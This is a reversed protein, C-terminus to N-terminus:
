RTRLAEADSSLQHRRPLAREHCQDSGRPRRRPLSSRAQPGRRCWRDRVLSALAFGPVSSWDRFRHGAGYRIMLAAQAAIVCLIICWPNLLASPPVEGLIIDRSVQRHDRGYARAPHDRRLTTGGTTPASRSRGCQVREHLFFSRRTATTDDRPSAPADIRERCAGGRLM